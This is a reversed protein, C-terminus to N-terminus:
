AGVSLNINKHFLRNIFLAAYKSCDYNKFYSDEKDDLGYNIVQNNILTDFDRKNVMYRCQHNSHDYIFMELEFEENPNNGVHISTYETEVSYYILFANFFLFLVDKDVMVDIIKNHEKPYQLFVFLAHFKAYEEVSLKSMDSKVIEECTKYIDFESVYKIYFRASREFTSDIVRTGKKRHFIKNFHEFVYDELVNELVSKGINHKGVRRKFWEDFDDSTGKYSDLITNYRKVINTLKSGSRLSDMESKLTKKDVVRAHDVFSQVIDRDIRKNRIMECIKEWTIKSM